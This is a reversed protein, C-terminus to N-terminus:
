TELCMWNLIETVKKDQESLEIGETNTLWGKLPDKEYFVCYYGVVEEANATEDFMITADYSADISGYEMCEKYCANWRDNYKSIYYDIMEKLEKKTYM